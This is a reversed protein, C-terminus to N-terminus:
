CRQMHKSTCYKKCTFVNMYICVHIYVYIFIYVCVDIFVFM